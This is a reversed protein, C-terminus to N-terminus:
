KWDKVSPKDNPIKNYYFNMTIEYEVGDKNKGSTHYYVPQNNFTRLETKPNESLISTQATSRLRYFDGGRYHYRQTEPSSLFDTNIIKHIQMANMFDFLFDGRGFTFLEREKDKNERLLYTRNNERMVYYTRKEYRFPHTDSSGFLNQLAPAEQNYFQKFYYRMVGTESNYWMDFKAFLRKNSLRSGTAYRVVADMRYSEGSELFEVIAAKNAALTEQSMEREPIFDNGKSSRIAKMATNESLSKLGVFGAVKSVATYSPAPFVTFVAIVIGIVIASVMAGVFINWWRKQAPSLSALWENHKRM